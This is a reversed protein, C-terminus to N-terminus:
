ATLLDSLSRRTRKDIELQDFIAERHAVFNAVHPTVEALWADVQSDSWREQRDHVPEGPAATGAMARVSQVYDDVIADAPVDANALLLACIMGTRDRGSACHVLVGIPAAAIAELATRVLLPLIRVNHQWYEPSDLLPMCVSQFEPNTQDELPTHAVVITETLTVVPDSARAGIEDTNRLDVISRLGWEEAAFWGAATLFERRPGRAIRNWRTEGSPSANTPLGGLDRVNRLGDWDLTRM